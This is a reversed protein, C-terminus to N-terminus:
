GNELAGYIETLQQLAYGSQIESVNFQNYALNYFLKEREFYKLDYIESLDTTSYKNLFSPGLTIVPVGEFLADVAGISSFHVLVYAQKLYETLPLTDQKKKVKVVMDTHQKLEKEVNYAWEVPNINELVGWYSSPPLVLIIHGDKKYEKLPRNHSLFRDSPLNLLDYSYTRGNKTFRYYANKNRSTFYGHDINVYNVGNAETTKMVKHCGRLVGYMVADGSVYNKVHELPYGFGKHVLDCMSKSIGHDTFYIKPNNLM